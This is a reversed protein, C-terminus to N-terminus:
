FYVIQYPISLCTVLYTNPRSMYINGSYNSVQLMAIGTHPHTGCIEQVQQDLEEDSLDDHRQISIGWEKVRRWLTTRSVGFPLLLEEGHTGWQSCSNM